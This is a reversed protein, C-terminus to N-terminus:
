CTMGLFAHHVRTTLLRAKTFREAHPFLNLAAYTTELVGLFLHGLTVVLHHGWRLVKVHKFLLVM